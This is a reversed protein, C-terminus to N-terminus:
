RAYDFEFVPHERGEDDIVITKALCFLGGLTYDCPSKGEGDLRGLQGPLIRSDYRGICSYYAIQADGEWLGLDRLKIFDAITQVHGCNACRFRWQKPDDGFLERGKALWQELPMRRVPGRMVTSM